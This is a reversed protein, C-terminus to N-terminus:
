GRAARVNELIERVMEFVGRGEVVSSAHGSASLTADWVAISCPLLTSQADYSLRARPWLLGPLGVGLDISRSGTVIEFRNSKGLNASLLERWADRSEQHENQGV